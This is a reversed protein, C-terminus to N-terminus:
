QRNKQKHRKGCKAPGIALPNKFLASEGIMHRMRQMLDIADAMRRYALTDAVGSLAIEQDRYGNLRKIRPVAIAVKVHKLHGTAAM